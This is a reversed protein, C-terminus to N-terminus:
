SWKCEINVFTLCLKKLASKLICRSYNILIENEIVLLDFVNKLLGPYNM